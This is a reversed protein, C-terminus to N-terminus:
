PLRRTWAVSIFPTCAYFSWVRPLYSWIWHLGRGSIMGWFYKRAVGMHLPGLPVIYVRTCHIRFTSRDPRPLRARSYAPARTRKAKSYRKLFRSIVIQLRANKRDRHAMLPRPGPHRADRCMNHHSHWQLPTHGEQLKAYQGRRGNWSDAPTRSLMSSCFRLIGSGLAHSCRQLISVGNRAFATYSQFWYLETIPLLCITKCPGLSHPADALQLEM